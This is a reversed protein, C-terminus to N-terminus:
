TNVCIDVCGKQAARMNWTLLTKHHSIPASDGYTGKAELPCLVQGLGPNEWRLGPSMPALQARHHPCDQVSSSM